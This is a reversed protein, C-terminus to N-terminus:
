HLKRDTAYLRKAFENLMSRVLAPNEELVQEFRSFPIVLVVLDTKATVTASAPHRVFYGMEGVLEGEPIEAVETGEIFVAATGHEIVYLEHHNHGEKILHNGAKVDVEDAVSALHAIATSDANKFLRIGQLRREKPDISM